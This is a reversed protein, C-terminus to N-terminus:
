EKDRGLIKEAEQAGGPALDRVIEMFDKSVLGRARRLLLPVPSSPEHRRFYECARDLMRIVDERSRIEGERVEVATEVAGGEAPGMAGPIAQGRRVLQAEIISGIHGLMDALPSLGVARSPGVKATLISEIAVLVAGAEHVAEAKRRLDEIEAGSFAAEIISLTPPPDTRREPAPMKGEAALYDWLTFRGIGKVNVLEVNRLSRLMTEPGCLNLLTNIRTTPDDRDSPDLRPHFGEWHDRVLGLILMLGDRLGPLGDVALLARTLYVALRLDKTRGLLGVAMAKVARWDPEEGPAIVDGIQQEPRGAASREMAVFAPDYELDDGCPSEVTVPQLLEDVSVVHDM